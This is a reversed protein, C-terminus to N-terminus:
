SNKISESVQKIGDQVEKGFDKNINSVGEHLAKKLSFLFLGLKLSDGENFHTSIIKATQVLQPISMMSAGVSKVAYEIKGLSVDGQLMGSLNDVKKIFEHLNVESNSNMAELYAAFFAENLIGFSQAHIINQQLGKEIDNKVQQVFQEELKEAMDKFYNKNDQNILYGKNTAKIIDKSELAELLSINQIKGLSELEATRYFRKREALERLREIIKLVEDKAQGVRVNIYQQFLKKLHEGMIQQQKIEIIKENSINLTKKLDEIDQSLLRNVQYRYTLEGGSSYGPKLYNLVAQVSDFTILRVTKRDPSNLVLQTKVEQGMANNLKEHYILTEKKIKDLQGSFQRKKEETFISTLLKGHSKMLNIINDINKSDVNKEENWQLTSITKKSERMQAIHKDLSELEKRQQQTQKDIEIALLSKRLTRQEKIYEVCFKKLLKKDETMSKFQTIMSELYWKSTEPLNKLNNKQNEKIQELTSQGFKEKIINEINEANNGLNNGIEEMLDKGIQEIKGM